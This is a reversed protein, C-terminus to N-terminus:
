GEWRFVAHYIPQGAALFKAEYDTVPGQPEGGHITESRVPVYGYAKLSDVSFDFFPANDTKLWLEGGPRLLPSLRALARPHTLRRKAHRKKPWPDSFNLYLRDIEMPAFYAAINAADDFIFGVNSLGAEEVRRWAVYLAEAKRELGIFLAEPDRM